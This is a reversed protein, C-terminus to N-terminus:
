KGTASRTARERSNAFAARTVAIVVACAGVLALAPRDSRALYYLLGRAAATCAAADVYALGRDLGRAATHRAHMLNILSARFLTAIYSM